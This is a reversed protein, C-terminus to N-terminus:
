ESVEGIIAELRDHIKPAKRAIASAEAKTLGGRHMANRIADNVSNILTLKAQLREHADREAKKQEDTLKAM